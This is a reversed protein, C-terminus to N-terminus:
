FLVLIPLRQLSCFFLHQALTNMAEVAILQERRDNKLCRAVVEFLDFFIGGAEELILLDDILKQCNLHLM